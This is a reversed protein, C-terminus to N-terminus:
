RVGSAGGGRRRAPDHARRRRPPSHGPRRPASSACSTSAARRARSPGSRSTAACAKAPWSPDPAPLVLRGLSPRRRQGPGARDDTARRRPAGTSRALRPYPVGVPHTCPAAVAAGRCLSVRKRVPTVGRVAALWAPCWAIPRDSSRFATTGREARSSTAGHRPTGTSRASPAPCGSAPPHMTNGAAGRCLSAATCVPDHRPRRRRLRSTLPVALRCHDTAPRSGRRRETTRPEAGRHEQAVPWAPTPCGLPTPAHHQWWLADRPRRFPDARPGGAGPTTDRARACTSRAVPAPM